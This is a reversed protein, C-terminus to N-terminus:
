ADRLLMAWLGNSFGLGLPFLRLILKGSPARTRRTNGAGGHPSHPSEKTFVNGPPSLGPTPDHPDGMGRAEWVRTALLCVEQYIRQSMQALLADSEQPQPAGGVFGRGKGKGGAYFSM